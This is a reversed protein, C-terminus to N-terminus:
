NRLKTGCRRCFLDSANAQSGCVHCYIPSSELKEEDGASRRRRRRPKASKSRSARMRLLMFVGVAVLLAGFVALIWPLLEQLDPTSGQTTEPRELTPQSVVADVSLLQDPKEYAMSIELRSDLQLTGLSARIYSLGDQGVQSVGAPTLRMGAATPPTQVEYQFNDIQVGGPWLYSFTREADNISLDSYFELQLLLSNSEVSVWSWQNVKDMEYPAVYLNRDDGITAVAHPEGAEIPIPLRVTAPLQTTPPLQARYIVLTEQRDFEPWLAVELVALPAAPEPPAGWAVPLLDTKSYSVNIQPRDAPDLRGLDLSTYTLGDDETTVEGGPEVVFDSAGVPHLVEFNFAAASLGGPWEFTFSRETGQQELPAYFEIWVGTTAATVTVVRRGAQTEITWDVSDDLRGDPFWAAVVHPKAVGEPLPLSVTAPLDADAELRALYLVLMAPRDYEPWLAVEISEFAAAEQARAPSGSFAFLIITLTFLFTARRM